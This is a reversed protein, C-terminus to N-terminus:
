NSAIFEEPTPVKMGWSQFGSAKRAELWEPTAAVLRGYTIVEKAYTDGMEFEGWTNESKAAVMWRAYQDKLENAPAKYSKLVRWEWGGPAQYIAYPADTKRTKAFPNAM